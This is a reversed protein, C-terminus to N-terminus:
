EKEGVFFARGVTRINSGKNDGNGERIAYLGIDSDTLAQRQLLYHSCMYKKTFAVLPLGTKKDTVLYVYM